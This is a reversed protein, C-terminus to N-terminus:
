NFKISNLQISHAARNTGGSGRGVPHTQILYCAPGARALPVRSRSQDTGPPSSIPAIDAMVKQIPQPYINVDLGELWLEPAM